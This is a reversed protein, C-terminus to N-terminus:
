LWDPPHIARPSRALNLLRDMRRGVRLRQDVLQCPETIRTVVGLSRKKDEDHNGHQECHDGDHNCAPLPKRETRRSCLIKPAGICGVFLCASLLSANLWPHAGSACAGRSKGGRCRTDQRASKDSGGYRGTLPTRPLRGNVPYEIPAMPRFSRPLCVTATITTAAPPRSGTAASHPSSRNPTSLRQPSNALRDSTRTSASYTPRTM